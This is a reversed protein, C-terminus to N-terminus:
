LLEKVIKSIKSNDIKGELVPKVLKMAPGMNSKGSINNEALLKEIIAKAEEEPMEEPLYGELTLIYTKYAIADASDQDKIYSLSDKHEKIQKKVIAVIEADTLERKLDIEKNKIAANLMRIGTLETQMKAKMCQKMDTMIQQKLM